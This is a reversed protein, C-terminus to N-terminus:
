ANGSSTRLAQVCASFGTLWSVPTVGHSVGDQFAKGGHQEGARGDDASAARAGLFLLLERDGPGDVGAPDRPLVGVLGPDHLLPGVLVAYLHPDHLDVVVDFRDVLVGRALEVADHGGAHVRQRNGRGAADIGGRQDHAVVGVAVVADHRLLGIGDGAQLAALHVQDLKGDRMVQEGARQRADARALAVHRDHIGGIGVDDRGVGRGLDRMRHGPVRQEVLDGRCGAGPLDVIGAANGPM